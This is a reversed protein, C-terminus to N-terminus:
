EFAISTNFPVITIDCWLHSLTRIVQTHYIHSNRVRGVTVGRIHLYTLSDNTHISWLFISSEGVSNLVLRTCGCVM